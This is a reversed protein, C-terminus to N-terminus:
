RYVGCSFGCIKCHITGVIHSHIEVDKSVGFIDDVEDDVEEIRGAARSPSQEGGVDKAEENEDEGDGCDEDEVDPDPDLELHELNLVVM